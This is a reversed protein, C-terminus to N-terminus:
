LAIGLAFGIVLFISGVISLLGFDPESTEIYKIIEIVTRPVTLSDINVATKFNMNTPSYEVHIRGVISVSDNESRFEQDASRKFLLSRILTDKFKVVQVLSDIAATDEEVIVAPAPNPTVVPPPVTLPIYVTVTDRVPIAEALKKGWVSDRWLWVLAIAVILGFALVISATRWNM